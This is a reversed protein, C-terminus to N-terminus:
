ESPLEGQMTLNYERVYAYFEEETVFQKYGWDEPKDAPVVITNLAGHVKGVVKITGGSPRPTAIGPM